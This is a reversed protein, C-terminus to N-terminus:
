NEERYRQMERSKRATIDQAVVLLSEIAGDVNGIPSLTVAWWRRPGRAVGPAFIEFRVAEGALGREVAHRLLAEVDGPWVEWWHRGTLSAETRVGLLARGNENIFSVRAEPNLLIVCDSCTRLFALTFQPAADGLLDIARKDADGDLPLREIRDTALEGPTQDTM